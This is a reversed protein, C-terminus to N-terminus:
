RNPLKANQLWTQKVCCAIILADGFEVSCIITAWCEFRDTVCVIAYDSMVSLDEPCCTIYHNTIEDEAYM